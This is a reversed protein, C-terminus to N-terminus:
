QRLFRRVCSQWAIFVSAQLSCLTCHKGQGIEGINKDIPWCLKLSGSSSCSKLFTKVTNNIKPPPLEHSSQNRSYSSAGLKGLAAHASCTGAHPLHRLRHTEHTEPVVLSDWRLFTSQTHDQNVKSQTHVPDISFAKPPCQRAMSCSHVPHVLVHSTSSARPTFPWTPTPHTSKLCNCLVSAM